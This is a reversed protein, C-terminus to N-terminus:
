RRLQIRREIYIQRSPWYGPGYYSPGYFNQPYARYPSYYGPSFIFTGPTIQYNHYRVQNGWTRGTTPGGWQSNFARNRQQQQIAAAQRRNAFHDNTGAASATTRSSGVAFLLLMVFGIALM